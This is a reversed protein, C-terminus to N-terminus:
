RREVVMAFAMGGAACVTVLGFEVDRRAM